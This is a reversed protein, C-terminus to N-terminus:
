FTPTAIYTLTATYDDAAEQLASIAVKYAVTTSGISATVGDAPGDHAFIARPTTSVGIFENPAFEDGDRMGDTDQDATTIGWHGWTNEDSISNSPANWAAPTDPSVGDDFLDIDAGTESELGGDAEVTVVFGNLANTQVTLNQAIVKPVGASLTEFPITTSSSDDTVTEGNVTGGALGNVTFEFTTSVDATVLVTDLIVIRTHGTDEAGTGASIDIEYSQNGDAPSPNNIKNSGDITVTVPDTAVAAGGTKTFTITDTTTSVAESFTATGATIAFDGTTVGTFDFGNATVFDIVITEADALTNVLNFTITHDSDAGPSTDTMLDSVNELNAAEAYNYAGMAWLVVATAVLTAIVRYSASVNRSLVFM